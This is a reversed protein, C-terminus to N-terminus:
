ASGRKDQIQRKATSKRVTVESSSFLYFLVRLSGSERAGKLVPIKDLALKVNRKAELSVPGKLQIDLQLYNAKELLSETLSVEFDLVNDLAFLVEDFDAMTLFDASTLYVKERSKIRELRKLVTQCTCPGILFRSIDGTRYRILPMASRTLTSFVIEGLQGDVVPLGSSPDIIEIYLDAERLHYGCFGECELGGGLGMETMGYHNFVKCGWARELEQVIAWPVHDTSLLVNRLSLSPTNGQSDKYRALSLVQTPIGVLVNINDRKIQVLTSEPNTVLGHVVGTAGARELGIRLLDGVSGPTDGPLMILVRDEPKVLTLMGHQFFNITLEQDAETFFLRKPKGTTGSSQLTVIRDIENQPVCLFDLPNDKLDEASTFPLKSIDQLSSLKCDVGSYLRQYFRSKGTVLNLTEQLKGLQYDEILKRTLVGSSEGTIKHKIWPELSTTKIGM